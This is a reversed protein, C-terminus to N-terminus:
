LLEQKKNLIEELEEIYKLGIEHIQKIDTKVHLSTFSHHREVKEVSFLQEANILGDTKLRIM